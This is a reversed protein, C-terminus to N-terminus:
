RFSFCLFFDREKGRERERRGKADKERVPWERGKKSKHTTRIKRGVVKGKCLVKAGGMEPQKRRPGM